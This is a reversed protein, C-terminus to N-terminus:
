ISFKLLPLKPEENTECYDKVRKLDISSFHWKLRFYNEPNKLISHFDCCHNSIVNLLHHLQRCSSKFCEIGYSGDMFGDNAAM